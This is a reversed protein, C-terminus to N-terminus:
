FLLLWIGASWMIEMSSIYKQGNQGDFLQSDSRQLYIIKMSHCLAPNKFDWTDRVSHELILLGGKIWICIIWNTTWPNSDFVM